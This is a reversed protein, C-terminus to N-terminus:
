AQETAVADDQTRQAVQIAHLGKAVQLAESPPTYLEEPRQYANAERATLPLDARSCSSIPRTHVMRLQYCYVQRTSCVSDM